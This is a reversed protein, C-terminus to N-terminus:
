PGSPVRLVGAPAPVRRAGPQHVCKQFANAAASRPDAPREAPSGRRCIASSPGACSAMSDARPMKTASRMCRVSERLPRTIALSALMSDIDALMPGLGSLDPMEFDPIMPMPPIVPMPPIAPFEMPVMPVALVKPVEPVRPEQAFAPAPWLLCLLSLVRRASRWDYAMENKVVSM